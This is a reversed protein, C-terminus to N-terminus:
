THGGEKQNMKGACKPCLGSIEFQHGTIEYGTNERLTSEMQEFPCGDIPVSAHCRVCVLRHSHHEGGLQYYVVGDQHVSRQLLGHENMTALARYVTSLNAREVPDLAECVQEATLPGGAESLIRLMARRRPTVKLGAQKLLMDDM